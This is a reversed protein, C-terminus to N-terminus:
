NQNNLQNLQERAEAAAQTDPYREILKRLQDAAVDKRGTKAVALASRLQAAAVSEDPASAGATTPQTPGSKQPQISGAKQLTDELIRKLDDPKEYGGVWRSFEKGDPKVFVVTPYARVSFQKALSKNQEADVRYLTFRGITEPIQEAAADQRKCHPCWTTYFDIMLPKGQEQAVELAHNYSGIVSKLRDARGVTASSLMLGAVVVGMVTSPKM